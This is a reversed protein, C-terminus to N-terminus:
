AKFILLISAILALLGLLKAAGRMQEVHKTVPKLESEILNTRKIHEELSKTNIVLTKDMRILINRVTVLERELKALRKDDM